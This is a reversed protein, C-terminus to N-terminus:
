ASARGAGRLQVDATSDGPQVGEVQKPTARMDIVNIMVFDDGTDTEMFQRWLKLREPDGGSAQLQSIHHDVEKPSLPGGLATYWYFFAGYIVVLIPWIRAARSM